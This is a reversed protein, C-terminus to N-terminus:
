AKSGSEDAIFGKIYPMLAAMTKTVYDDFDTSQSFGGKKALEEVFPKLKEEAGVGVIDLCGAKCAEFLGKRTKGDDEFDWAWHWVIKYFVFSAMWTVKLEPKSFYTNDIAGGLVDNARKYIVDYAIDGWTDSAKSTIIKDIGDQLLAKVQGAAMAGIPGTLSNVVMSFARDNLWQVWEACYLANDYWAAVDDYSKKEKLILDRAIEWCEKRFKKVDETGMYYKGNELEAKKKEKEPSPLWKEITKIAYEYERQWDTKGEDMYAPIIAFPITVSYYNIGDDVVADVKFRYREGKKGPIAKEMSVVFKGSPLNSPRSGDFTIPAQITEFISEARDDSPEVEDFYFSDSEFISTDCELAKKEANWTMYRLDFVTTKMKGDDGTDAKILIEGTEPDYDLNKILFLGERWIYVDCYDTLEYEGSRGTVTIRGKSYHAANGGTSPDENDAETISLDAKTSLDNQPELNVTCLNEAWTDMEYDLQWPDVGANAVNVKFTFSEGSKTLFNCKEPKVTLAPPAVLPISYKATYTRKNYRITAKLQVKAPPTGGDPNDIPTIEAYKWDDVMSTDSISAWKAGDGVFSFNIETTPDLLVITEKETEQVLHAYLYVPDKGAEIRGGAPMISKEMYIPSGKGDDEEEDEGDGSCDFLALIALLSELLAGGFSTSSSNTVFDTRYKM